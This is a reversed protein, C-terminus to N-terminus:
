KATLMRIRTGLFAPNRFADATTKALDEDGALRRSARTNVGLRGECTRYYRYTRQAWAKPDGLQSELACIQACM